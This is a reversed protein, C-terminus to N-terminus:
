VPEQTVILYRHVACNVGSGLQVYLIPMGTEKNQEWFWYFDWRYDEKTWQSLIWAVASTPSKAAQFLPADWGDPFHVSESCETQIEIHTSHGEPADPWITPVESAVGIPITYGSNDYVPRSNFIM